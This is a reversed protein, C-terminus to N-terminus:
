AAATCQHGRKPQGCKSCRYERRASAAPAAPSALRPLWDSRSDGNDLRVRKSSTPTEPRPPRGAHRDLWIDDSEFLDDSDSAAAGGAGRDEDDDGDDDESESGDDRDRKTPTWPQSDRPARGSYPDVPSLDEDRDDVYVDSSVMEEDDDGLSTVDDDDDDRAM